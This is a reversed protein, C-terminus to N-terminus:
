ETSSKRRPVGVWPVPVAKSSFLSIRVASWASGSPSPRSMRGLTRFRVGRHAAEGWATIASGFPLPIQRGDLWWCASLYCPALKSSPVVGVSRGAQRIRGLGWGVRTQVGGTGVLISDCNRRSRSWSSGFSGAYGIEVGVDCKRQDALLSTIPCDICMYRLYDYGFSSPRAPFLVVLQFASDFCQLPTPGLWGVKGVFWGVSRGVSWGVLGCVRFWREQVDDRRCGIWDRMGDRACEAPIVITVVVDRGYTWTWPVTDLVRHSLIACCM